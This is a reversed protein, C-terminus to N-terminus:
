SLLRVSTICSISCHHLPARDVERRVLPPAQCRLGAGETLVLSAEPSSFEEEEEEEEM